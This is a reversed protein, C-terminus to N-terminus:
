CVGCCASYISWGSCTPLCTNLSVVPWWIGLSCFHFQWCKMGVVSLIEPDAYASSLSSKKEGLVFASSVPTTIELKGGSLVLIGKLICEEEMSLNLKKLSRAMSFVNLLFARDYLRSMEDIHLTYGCVHTFILHDPNFAKYASILWAEFRSGAITLCDM